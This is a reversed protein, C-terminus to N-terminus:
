RRTQHGRRSSRGRNQFSRGRAPQSYSTPTSSKKPQSAAVPATAATTTTSAAVPRAPRYNRSTSARSATLSSILAMERDEKAESRLIDATDGLMSPASAQFPPRLAAWTHTRKPVKMPDCSRVFAERRLILLSMLAGSSMDTVFGLTKRIQYWLAELVSPDQNPLNTVEKLTNLLWDLTSVARVNKRLIYEVDAAKNIPISPEKGPQLYSSEEPTPSASNAAMPFEDGGHYKLNFGAGFRNFPVKTTIGSSMQNPRVQSLDHGATFKEYSNQLSAVVGDSPPFSHRVPTKVDTALLGRGSTKAPKEPDKYGALTLGLDVLTTWTIDPTEGEQSPDMDRHASQQPGLRSFVSERDPSLSAVSPASRPMSPTAPSPERHRGRSIVQRPRSVPSSMSTDPVRHVRSRIVPARRPSAKRSVPSAVRLRQHRRSVPSRSRRPVPSRSRYRPSRSRYRPSRSRPLPSRDRHHHRHVSKVREQQRHSIIDTPPSYLLERDLDSALTAHLSIEPLPSQNLVQTVVTSRPSQVVSFQCQKHVQTTQTVAASPREPTLGTPISPMSILHRNTSDRNDLVRATLDGSSDGPAMVTPVSSNVVTLINSGIQSSVTSIPVTSDMSSVVPSSQRAGSRLARGARLTAAVKAQRDTMKFYFTHTLSLRPILRRLM